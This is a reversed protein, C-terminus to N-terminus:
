AARRDALVRRNHRYALEGLIAHVTDVLAEDESLLHPRERTLADIAWGLRELEEDSGVSYDITTTM